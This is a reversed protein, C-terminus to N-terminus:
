RSAPLERSQSRVAKLWSQMATGGKKMPMRKEQNKPMVRFSKTGSPKGRDMRASGASAMVWSKKAATQRLMGRMAMVTRM